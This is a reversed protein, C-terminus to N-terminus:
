ETAREIAPYDQRLRAWHLLNVRDCLKLDLRMYERGTLQGVDYVRALGKGVRHLDDITKASNIRSIASKYNSM